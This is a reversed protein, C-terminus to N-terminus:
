RENEEAMEERNLFRNKIKEVREPIDKLVKTYLAMGAMWAVLAPSNRVRTKIDKEYEPDIKGESVLRACKRHLEIMSKLKDMTPTTGISKGPRVNYKHTAYGCIKIKETKANSFLELKPILDEWVTNEPFRIKNNDFLSKKWCGSWITGENNRGIQYHKDTHKEKPKFTTSLLVKDHRDRWKRQFGLILVEVLENKDIASSINKLSDEDNLEDDADLFLVYEGTGKDLGINRATGPGWKGEPTEYFQFDINPNSMIYRKVLERSNDQSHDDIIMCEYDGFNQNKVSELAKLIFEQANHMPIIITFRKSQKEKRMYM